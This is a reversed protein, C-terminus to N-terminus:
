EIVAAFRGNELPVRNTSDAIGVLTGSFTGSVLRGNEFSTIRLQGSGEDGPGLVFTTTDSRSTGRRFIVSYDPPGVTAPLPDHEIDYTFTVQLFNDDESETTTLQTQATISVQHSLTDYAGKVLNPGFAVDTGQISAELYAQGLDPGTQEDGGTCGALLLTLLVAIAAGSRVISRSM